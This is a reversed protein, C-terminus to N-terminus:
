GNVLWEGLAMGLLAAAVVAAMLCGMPFPKELPADNINHPAKRHPVLTMM